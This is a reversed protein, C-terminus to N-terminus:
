EVLQSSWERFQRHDDTPVGLMEGVVTLPLLYAFDAILDMEGDSLSEALLDDVVREVKPQWTSLERNRFAHAVLGRVRPHDPPDLFVMVNAHHEYIPADPGFVGSLPVKKDSSMARGNLVSGSIRRVREGEVEGEVLDAISAGLRTRLLRPNRVSPGALSIVRNVDLEGTAFLHGIASVDQYNVFNTAGALILTAADAGSVVSTSDTM